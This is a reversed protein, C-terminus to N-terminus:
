IFFFTVDGNSDLFLMRVFFNIQSELGDLSCLNDQFCFVFKNMCKLSYPKQNKLSAKQNDQFCRSLNFDIEQNM